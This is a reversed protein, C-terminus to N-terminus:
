AAAQPQEIMRRKIPPRAKLHEAIALGLQSLYEADNAWVEALLDLVRYPQLERLQRKLLEAKKDKDTIADLVESPDLAELVTAPDSAAMAKAREAAEANEVKRAEAEAKKV